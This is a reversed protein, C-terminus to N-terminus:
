ALPYLEVAADGSAALLAPPSAPPGAPVAFASVSAGDFVEVVQADVVVRLERGALPVAWRADGIRVDLRGGATELRVAPGAATGLDLAAAAAPDRLTWEVDYPGAPAVAAGARPVAVPGGTRAATVAAHPRVVLRDGALELDHPLSHAGVWRRDAAAAGRVWHLLGPRGTRDVFASGAYLAPGHTLARWREAVFRGGVLDGVAYVEHAPRGGWASVVLVWRGGMPLLQPCEWVEGSWPDTRSGHRRALVGDYTWTELDDSRYALAAGTGDALGAGLLMLWADGDHVVYPDRVAALEVDDPLATVAQRKTWRTWGSDAPRALRAVGLHTAPATVSTYFLAPEGRDPVVVCGSWVGDDGDGPSLVVGDETWTLLDASTAHGWHQETAWADAGPVHQYFLHYAGDRYTLGLPDNVWGSAATFHLRPRTTDPTM